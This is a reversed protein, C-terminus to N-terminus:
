NTITLLWIHGCANCTIQKEKETYYNHGCMPCIVGSEKRQALKMSRDYCIINATQALNLSHHTPIFVKHKAIGVYKADLSGDEPGFMYVAQPPHVFDYLSTADDSLEIAVITHKEPIFATLDSVGLFVPLRLRVCETDMTEWSGKDKFRSNSAALFNGGFAGLARITGGINFSNKPNDLLIGFSVNELRNMIQKTKAM